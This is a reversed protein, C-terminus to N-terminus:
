GFFWYLATLFFLVVLYWYKKIIRLFSTGCKTWSVKVIIFATSWTTIIGFMQRLKPIITTDREMVQFPTVNSSVAKDEQSEFDFVLVAIHWTGYQVSNVNDPIYFTYWQPYSFDKGSFYQGASEWKGTKMPHTANPYCGRVIGSADIIFIYRYPKELKNNGIDEIKMKFFLTDGPYLKKTSMEISTKIDYGSIGVFYTLETNLIASTSASGKEFVGYEDPVWFIRVQDKGGLEKLAIADTPSEKPTIYGLLNSPVEPFLSFILLTAITLAIINERQLM